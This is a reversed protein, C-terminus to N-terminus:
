TEPKLFVSRVTENVSRYINGVCACYSSDLEVTWYISTALIFAIISYCKPKLRDRVFLCLIGLKIPKNIFTLSLYLCSVAVCIGYLLKSFSKEYMEPLVRVIIPTFIVCLVACVFLRWRFYTAIRLSKDVDYCSSRPYESVQFNSFSRWHNISECNCKVAFQAKHKPQIINVSIQFSNTTRHHHFSTDASENKIFRCVDNKNM